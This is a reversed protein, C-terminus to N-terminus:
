LLSLLSEWPIQILNDESLMFLTPSHKSRIVYTSVEKMNTRRLVMFRDPWPRNIWIWRCGRKLIIRLSYITMSWKNLIKWRQQGQYSSLIYKRSPLFIKVHCHNLHNKEKQYYHTQQIISNTVSWLRIILFINYWFYISTVLIRIIYYKQWLKCWLYM